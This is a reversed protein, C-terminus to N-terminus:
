GEDGFRISAIEAASIRGAYFFSPRAADMMSLWARRWALRDPTLRLGFEQGVERLVCADPTEGVEWRGAM